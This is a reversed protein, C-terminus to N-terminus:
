TPKFGIRKLFALPQRINEIKLECCVDPIKYLSTTDRRNGERSFIGLNNAEAHAIIYTDVTSKHTIDDIMKYKENIEIGRYKEKESIEKVLGSNVQKKCWKMLDKNYKVERSVVDLLVWKGDRLAAEFKDWFGGNLPIPTWMSFGILVNTDVVYITKDLDKSM